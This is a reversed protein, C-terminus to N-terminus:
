TPMATPMATHPAIKTPRPASLAASTRRAAGRSAAVPRALQDLRGRGPTEILSQGANRLVGLVQYRAGRVLPEARGAVGHQREAREQAEGAGRYRQPQEALTLDVALRCLRLALRAGDRLHGGGLASCPPVDRTTTSAVYGRLGSRSREPSHISPSRTTRSNFSRLRRAKHGM